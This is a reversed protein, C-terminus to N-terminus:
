EELFITVASGKRAWAGGLPAQRAAV